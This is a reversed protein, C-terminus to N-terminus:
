QQEMDMLKGGYLKKVTFEIGFAKEYSQLIEIDKNTILCVSVGSNDGRATRGARHLYEDPNVPFDLSIIHSVEPIDLGRASLDSSVLVNCKGRRFSDLARQREEKSANGYIATSKVKHYQLKENIQRLETNNNVFVIARKPQEAALLKRLNEFRDRLSGLICIHEIRPNIESKNEIKIIEVEKVLTKALNLTEKNISASFFMLQRDKMTSKIIDKIITPKNKSLLNDAEDLVITKITHATIKRKKILDLIRGPSGVIIHPKIEKLKKIQKEINSEGMISLSKIDMHSNTALLKIQSEIQVVLEHTPALIIAQMERKELNIKEFIPILFALTKGTGTHAEAIIDKNELAFPISTEQIGTPTTINQKKLAMVISQNINLENFSKNM